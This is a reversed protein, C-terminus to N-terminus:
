VNIYRPAPPISVGKCFKYYLLMMGWQYIKPVGRQQLHAILHLDYAVPRSVSSDKWVDYPFIEDKEYRIYPHVKRLVFSDFDDDPKTGLVTMISDIEFLVKEPIPGGCFYEKDRFVAAMSELAIQHLEELSLGIDKIESATRLKNKRPM